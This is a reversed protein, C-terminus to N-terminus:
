GMERGILFCDLIEQFSLQKIVVGLGEEFHLFRPLPKALYCPDLLATVFSLKLDTEYFLVSM